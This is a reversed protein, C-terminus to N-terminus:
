LALVSAVSVIVSVSSFSEGGTKLGESYETGKVVAIDFPAYLIKCMYTSFKIIFEYEARRGIVRM